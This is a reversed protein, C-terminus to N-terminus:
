GIRVTEVDSRSTGGSGFVTFTLTYTGTALPKGQLERSPLTFSSGAAISAAGSGITVSTGDPRLLLLTWTFTALAVGNVANWYGVQGGAWGLPGATGGANLNYMSYADVAFASAAVNGAGIPSGAAEGSAAAAPAATALVIVPAAWVGARLLQRRSVARENTM